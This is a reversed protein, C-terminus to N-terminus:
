RAEVAAAFGALFDREFSERRDAPIKTKVAVAKARRTIESATLRKAHPGAKVAAQRGAALAQSNAVEQGIPFGSPMPGAPFDTQHRRAFAMGEASRSDIARVAGTRDFHERDTERRLIVIEDAESVGAALIMLATLITKM